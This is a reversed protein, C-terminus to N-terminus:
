CWRGPSARPARARSSSRSRRPPSTSTTSTRAPAPLRGRRDRGGGDLLERRLPRGGVRDRRESGADRARRRGPLVHRRPRPGGTPERCLRAGGLELQHRPTGALGRPGPRRAMALDRLGARAPRSTAPPDGSRLRRRRRGHRGDAAHVRPRSRRPHPAPQVLCRDAPRAPRSAANGQARGPRSAGAALRRVAQERLGFGDLQLSVHASEHALLDLDIAIRSGTRAGSTRAEYHRRLLPNDFDTASPALELGPRRIPVRGKFEDISLHVGSEHLRTLTAEVGDAALMGAVDGLEVGAHRLLRLYPSRPQAYIGREFVGLLADARRAQSEAILRRCDAPSPHARLFGPLGLAYRIGARARSPM